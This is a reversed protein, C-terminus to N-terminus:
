AYGVNKRLELAGLPSLKFWYKGNLRVYFAMKEDVLSKLVALTTQGTTDADVIEKTPFFEERRLLLEFARRERIGRITVDSNLAKEWNVHWKDLETM